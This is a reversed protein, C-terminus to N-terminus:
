KSTSSKLHNFPAWTDAHPTQNFVFQTLTEGCNHVQLTETEKARSRGAPETGRSWVAPLSGWGPPEAQGRLWHRPAERRTGAEFGPGQPWCLAPTVPPAEPAGQHQPVAEEGLLWNSLMATLMVGTVLQASRGTGKRTQREGLSTGHKHSTRRKSNLRFRQPRPLAPRREALPDGSCM